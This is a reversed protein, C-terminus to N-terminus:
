RKDNQYGSIECDWFFFPPLIDRLIIFPEELKKIWHAPLFAPKRGKSSEEDCGDPGKFRVNQLTWDSYDM